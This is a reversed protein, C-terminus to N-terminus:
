ENGKQQARREAVENARSEEWLKEALRNVIATQDYWDVWACHLGGGIDKYLLATDGTSVLEILRAKFAEKSEM